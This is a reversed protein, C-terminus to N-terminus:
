QLKRAHRVRQRDLRPDENWSQFALELVEACTANECSANGFSQPATLATKRGNPHLGASLGGGHWVMRSRNDKEEPGEESEATDQARLLRRGWGFFEPSGRRSLSLGAKVKLERGHRLRM